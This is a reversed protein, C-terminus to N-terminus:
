YGEAQNESDQTVGPKDGEIVEEEETKGEKVLPWPIGGPACIINGKIKRGKENRM